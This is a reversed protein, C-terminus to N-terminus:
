NVWAKLIRWVLSSAFGRRLLLDAMKHKAIGQEMGAFRAKYRELIAKARTEEDGVEDTEIAENLRNQLAKSVIELAVGRALLDRRLKYEGEPHLRDKTRIWALAFQLDDLLKSEQLKALTEEIEKPKLERRLLAQRLEEVAYPRRKILQLAVLLAPASM